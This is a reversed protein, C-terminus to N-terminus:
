CRQKLEFVEVAPPRGPWNVAVKAHADKPITDQYELMAFTGGGLGPTGVMLFLDNNRGARLKPAVGYFTVQLPGDFHIVPADAARQAFSLVGIPDYLPTSQIVRGGVGAGKFRASEVEVSVQAVVVAPDAKLANRVAAIEAVSPNDAYRKLPFLSVSLGKHVKGGVALDGADFTYGDVKPGVNKAAAVKEGPETLDGNGNRDVYLADGDQVLWVRDRADHGFVLLCYRPKGAYAPEKQITRDIKSLDAAGAPATVLGAVLLFTWRM